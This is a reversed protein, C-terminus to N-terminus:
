GQSAGSRPSGLGAFLLDSSVVGVLRVHSALTVTEQGCLRLIRRAPTDYYDGGGNVTGLHM